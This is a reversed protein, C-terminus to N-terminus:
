LSFDLIRQVAYLGRGNKIRLERHGLWENKHILKDFARRSKTIIPFILSSNGHKLDKCGDDQGRLIHGPVGVVWSM